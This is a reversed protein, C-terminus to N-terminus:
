AGVAEKIAEDYRVVLDGWVGVFGSGKVEVIADLAKQLKDGSYPKLKEEWMERLSPDVRFRVDNEPIKSM